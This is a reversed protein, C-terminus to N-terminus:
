LNVRNRIDLMAKAAGMSLEQETALQGQNGDAITAAKGNTPLKELMNKAKALDAVALDIWEAAAENKIKGSKVFGEIMNQANVLARGNESKKAEDEAKKAQDKLEVMEAKLKDCEEQAENYKDEAKKMKDEMDNKKNEISAIAALISEENADAILGLKNAIKTMQQKNKPKQIISNLITQGSRWMAKTDTMDGQKTRGKNFEASADMEDCFGTTLAEAATIWTTKDMLKLIEDNSKGTRGAIMTAISTRMKKLEESSGGYPNHYMLLGYENMVRKRGAQFIVAAISAAIGICVTDVKTKTKLIANYISYGDMVIGGVSNIWIKISKKGMQDLAMLERVFQSGDIGPGEEDDWGIHRDILMVPEDVNPDIVYSLYTDPAHVM